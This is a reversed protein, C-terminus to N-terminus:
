DPGFLDRTAPQKGSEIDRINVMPYAIIGDDSQGDRCGSWDPGVGSM